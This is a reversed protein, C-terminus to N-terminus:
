RNHLKKKKAQVEELTRILMEWDGTHLRKKAVQNLIAQRGKLRILLKDEVISLEPIGDHEYEVAPLGLLNKLVVQNAEITVAPNLLSMGGAGMLLVGLAVVIYEAYFLGVGLAIGGSAM